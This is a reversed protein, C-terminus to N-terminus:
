VQLVKNLAPHDPAQYRTAAEVPVQTFTKRVRELITVDDMDDNEVPSRTTLLSESLNGQKDVLFADAAVVCFFYNGIAVLPNVATDATLTLGTRLLHIDANPTQADVIACDLMGADLFEQLKEHELRDWACTDM